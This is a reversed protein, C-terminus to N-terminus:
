LIRVKWSKMDQDSLDTAQAYGSNARGEVVEEISPQNFVSFQHHFSGIKLHAKGGLVLNEFGSHSTASALALSYGIFLFHIPHAPVVLFILLLSMYCVHEIM